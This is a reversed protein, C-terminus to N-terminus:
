RGRRRRVGMAGAAAALVFPGPAPVLVAEALATMELWDTEDLGLALLRRELDSTGGFAVEIDRLTPDDYITGYLVLAALLAGRANAHNFDSRYLSADWGAAAFAEGVPAVEASGPGHAANITSELTRYASRMQEHYNQVDPVPGGQAAYVDHGPAHAWTQFLITQVDPSTIRAEADLANGALHFNNFDSRLQAINEESHGQLVVHDWTEGEPLRSTLRSRQLYHDRLDAGGQVFWFNIPAERGVQVATFSFLDIVGTEGFDPVGNWGTHSNGFWFIHVPEAAAGAAALALVLAATPRPHSM